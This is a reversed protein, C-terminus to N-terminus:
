PWNVYLMGLDLPEGEEVTILEPFSADPADFALLWDYVTWVALYYDGPPVQDLAIQGALNSYAFIDGEEEQPGM